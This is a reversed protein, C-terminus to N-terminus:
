LGIRYVHVGFGAFDDEFSGNAVQVTRDEWLVTGTGDRASVFIRATVPKASANVAFVYTSNGHRKVLVSVSPRGCADTSDGSLVTPVAPQKPTRELLVPSLAAIRTTLNTMAAWDEPTRFVGSYRAGHEVDKEGAYHFWVIGNGGHILAAFSTAYLEAVTPFRHWLNGDFFQLIPWLARPRGAGYKAIDDKAKEMDRIVRAVCGADSSPNESYIYYLEPLFVDSFAVYPQYRSKVQDGGTVDAQCSLRSGDLMRVAEDRDLLESPSMQASTDDGIYWALVTRDEQAKRVLWADGAPADFAQTWSLLGHRAVASMFEDTRGHSYSHIFNFGAAKLDGVAKDLDFGNFAHPSVGYIGIPFFPEGDVLAVGDDRLGACLASPRSGIRFVKRSVTTNGAKDSVTLVFAHVGEAWTRGPRLAVVNGNREFPVAAKTVADCVTVADWDVGGDDVVEYRAELAPDSSPSEFRSYVLPPTVDPVQPRPVGWAPSYFTLTTGRVAVTEDPPLNPNDVGFAVAASVAGKPVTGCFRFDVFSPEHRFEVDLPTNAVQRGEADYWMLASGWSDSAGCRIWDADARIGFTLAYGGKEMKPPVAMRDSVIRWATECASGATCTVIFDNGDGAEAGVAIRTRNEYNKQNAPSFVAKVANTTVSCLSILLGRNRSCILRTRDESFRLKWDGAGVSLTPEGVIPRDSELLVFKGRRTPAGAIEIVAGEEFTPVVSKFALHRGAQVDEACVRLIGSVRLSSIGDSSTISGHGSLSPVSLDQGSLCLRGGAMALPSDTPLSGKGFRLEGDRVTTPGSYTNAGRLILMGPGTKTFGGSTIEGLTVGCNWTTAGRMAVVKATTADSYNVGPSTVVVKSPKGTEDDFAVFASAGEGGNPDEIVVRLAGLNATTMFTEDEPLAISVISRGSPALLDANWHLVTNAGEVCITAGGGFVTCVDPYSEYTRRGEGEGSYWEMFAKYEEGAPNGPVLDLTGGDFSLYSRATGMNPRYGEYQFRYARFTGGNNINLYTSFDKAGMWSIPRADFDALSGEGDVTFVASAPRGMSNRSFRKEGSAVSRFVGGQGVYFVSNGGSYGLYLNAGLHDTTGGKQVFAGFSNTYNGLHLDGNLTLRSDTAGWYGYANVGNASGQGYGLYANATLTASSGRLYVAGLGFYGTQIDNTVTAGDSIALSAWNNPYQNGWSEAHDGIMLRAGAEGRFVTKGRIEMRAPVNSLSSNIRSEGSNVVTGADVFSLSAPQDSDGKNLYITGVAHYQGGTVVVDGHFNCLDKLYHDSGVLNLTFNKNWQDTVLSANTITGYFSCVAGTSDGSVTFASGDGVIPGCWRSDGHAVFKSEFLPKLTWLSDLNPVGWCTMTANSLTYTNAASGRLYTVTTSTDQVTVSGGLKVFHGEHGAVARVGRMMYERNCGTLAHGDLYLNGYEGVGFRGTGGIRADGTLILTRVLGDGAKAGDYVLAGRGDPGDGEIAVNYLTNATEGPSDYNVLLQAGKAVTVKAKSSDADYSAEKIAYASDLRLVGERVETTGAFGSSSSSSAATLALTGEGTKVIGKCDHGILADYVSTDNKDVDAMLYGDKMEVTTASAALICTFLSSITVFSKCLEKM